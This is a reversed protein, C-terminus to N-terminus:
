IWGQTKAVDLPNGINANQREQVIKIYSSADHLGEFTGTDLWATGRSLLSVKLEDRELYIRNVDTIELEGRPSPKLSKAIECVKEDYFYLGTVAWSSKPNKPKEELEIVKEFEDFNIVGYNEPDRVQYAFIHAGLVNNHKSLQRGLGHGHFLNDGLIFGVKHGTIFNEALILGEAIGNPADQTCYEISIGFQDGSGLLKQFNPINDENSILLFERIGALMLTSLPYYILPKDFIPLLQKNVVRTIPSLRSGSGGAM